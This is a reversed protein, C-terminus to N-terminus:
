EVNRVLLGDQRRTWKRNEADQFTISIRTKKIISMAVELSVRGSANVEAAGKFVNGQVQWTYSSNPPILNAYEQYINKDDLFWMIVVNYIPQNSVNLAKAILDYFEQGNQQTRLIEAWASLLNAQSRSEQESRDKDRALEVDYIAKAYKGAYKAVIVGAIGVLVLGLSPIDGWYHYTSEM